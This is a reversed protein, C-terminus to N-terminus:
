TISTYVREALEEYQKIGTGKVQYETVDLTIAKSAVEEDGNATFMIFPLSGHQARVEELFELGDMGPMQYDSIVADYDMEELKELGKEAEAVTDIELGERELLTAGLELLDPDDDVLLIKPDM